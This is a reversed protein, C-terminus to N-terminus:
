AAFGLTGFTRVPTTSGSPLLRGTADSEFSLAQGSIWFGMLRRAINAAVNSLTCSIVLEHIRDPDTIDGGFTDLWVQIDLQPGIPEQQIIRVGRGLMPSYASFIPNGDKISPSGTGVWPVKWRYQERQSLSIQEWLGCWYQEALEYQKDDELFRPFLNAIM